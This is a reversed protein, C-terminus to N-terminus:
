WWIQSGDEYTFIREERGKTCNHLLLLANKPVDDIVLASERTGKLTKLLEWGEKEWYYLQYIENERIFNDDNRPLFRVKTLHTPQNFEIGVWLNKSSYAYFFSLVDGDFLTELNRGASAFVEKIAPSNGERDYLELEAIAGNSGIPVWYRFYPYPKTLELTLEHFRNETLPPIVAVTLSDSFDSKTAVQFKAGIMADCFQQLRDSSKYKRTLKVSERETLHPQLIHVTGDAQLLFPLGAPVTGEYEDFCIPLYVIDCGMAQFTARNGKRKAFHVIKWDRNDFVSLYVWKDKVEPFLSIEVDYADVYSHTVDQLCCDRFLEPVAEDSETAIGEMAEQRAYTHRFVKPLKGESRNSFHTHIAEGGSFPFSHYEDPLFVAWSHNMSRDGWQPVFDIAAPLGFSRFLAVCRSADGMCNNVTMRDLFDLPFEPMEDSPYYPNFTHDNNLKDFVGQTYFKNGQRNRVNKLKGAYTERYYTNWSSIPERHVRYPLVYHCFHEFSYSSNWPAKWAQFASDIHAILYDATLIEADYHREVEEGNRHYERLLVDYARRYFVEDQNPHHQYLSDVGQRFRHIASNKPTYHADMNALLFKAAQLKLENDKYHQLVKELEARNTGAQEMINLRRDFRCSTFIFLFVTLFITFITTTYSLNM